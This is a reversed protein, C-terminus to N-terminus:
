LIKKLFPFLKFLKNTNILMTSALLLFPIAPIKYRVIAGFIPTILGVIALLGLSFFLCYLFANSDSLPIRIFVLCFIFYALFLINEISSMKVLISDTEWIYPRVMTNLWANPVNRLLSNTSNIENIEFKSGTQVTDSLAIFDQQKSVIQNGPDYKTGSSIVLYLLIAIVGIGYSLYPKIRDFNKNIFYIILPFILVPLIYAKSFFTIILGLILMLISLINFREFLRRTHYLIIGISFLILGEKLLGSGWFLVSPFLVILLFGLRELGKITSRFFRYIATLGVLSLFNIFIVHVYFYGFSFVRALANFRIIVHSDSISGSSAGRTWFTMQQYYQNFYAENFDLGFGPM